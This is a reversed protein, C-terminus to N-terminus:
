KNPTKFKFLRYPTSPNPGLNIQSATVFISGNPGNSLSDPWILRFDRVVIEAPKKSRVDISKVSNDELSTLYLKGTSGFEIGDSPFTQAVKEVKQGLDNENMKSDLLAKIPVRYLTKGTLAQYYLYQHSPDLALGDSNVKKYTGDPQKGFEKKNITIHINEAKTSSHNALRRVANGTKLDVVVIAGLGSDTLFAHQGKTDIRVDNLYSAAPAVDSTMAYTREVKNSKLNVKVLKAGGAVVGKFEPSAADVIWLYDNADIFVAQVCVFHKDPSSGDWKNLESNPYAIVSGDKLLECVSNSVHNSWRPYNVFIRGTRSVAVGTWQLKSTSVDILSESAMAFNTTGAFMALVCIQHKINM